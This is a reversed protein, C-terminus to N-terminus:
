AGDGSILEWIRNRTRGFEESGMMGFSRPRPLGVEIVDVIRGPRPSMVLVQDSLYIAENLSHTIFFITKRTEQWIRLLEQGLKTRTQEDLAAFPEDMLIIRPDQALGRAIAVRQKMGGSLEHPYRDGFEHLGTLELLKIARQRRIDRPVGRLELPFEVNAFATKWPLLVPDQFVMGIKEPLPRVLREGDIRVEGETRDTLGALIQLLTSKGCGSPGVLTVFQGEDVTFSVSELANIPELMSVFTKSVSRAEIIPQGM